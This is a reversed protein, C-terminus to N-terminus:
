TLWPDLLAPSSSTLSFTVLETADAGAQCNGSTLEGIGVYWKTVFPNWLKGYLPYASARVQEDTSYFNDITYNDESPRDLFEDSCSSSSLAVISFLAITKFNIIYKKM